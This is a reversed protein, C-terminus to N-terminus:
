PKTVKEISIVHTTRVPAQAVLEYVELSVNKHGDSALKLAAEQGAYLARQVTVFELCDRYGEAKIVCVAKM